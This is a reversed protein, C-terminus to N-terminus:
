NPSGYAYDAARSRREGEEEEEKEEATKKQGRCPRLRLSVTLGRDGYGRRADTSRGRSFRAVAPRRSRECPRRTSAGRSTTDAIPSRRAYSRSQLVIALPASTTAGRGCRERVGVDRNCRYTSVVSPALRQDVRYAVSRDTSRESSRDIDGRDLHLQEDLRRPPKASESEPGSLTNSVVRHSPENWCRREIVGRIM